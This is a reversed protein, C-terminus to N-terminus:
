ALMIALVAESSPSGQVDHMRTLLTEKRFHPRTLFGDTGTGLTQVWKLRKAKALVEDPVHHAMLIEADEIYPDTGGPEVVDITLEPFCKSLEDKFQRRFREPMPMVTLLKTM